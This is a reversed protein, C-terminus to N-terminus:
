SDLIQTKIPFVSPENPKVITRNSVSAVKASITDSALDLESNDPIATLLEWLM